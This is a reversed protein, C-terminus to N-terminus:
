LSLSRRAPEFDHKASSQRVVDMPVLLRRNLLVVSGVVANLEAESVDGLVAPFFACIYQSLGSLIGVGVSVWEGDEM